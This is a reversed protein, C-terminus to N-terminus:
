TGSIFFVQIQLCHLDQHPPQYHAEEDLDVSNPRSQEAELRQIRLTIYSPSSMKQFNASSFKTTMKEITLSNRALVQFSISIQGM